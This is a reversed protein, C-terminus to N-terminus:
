EGAGEDSKGSGATSSAAAGEAPKPEPAEKGERVWDPLETEVVFEKVLDARSKAELYWENGMTISGKPCAECCLSCFLCKSYDIVYHTVIADKGKGVKEVAICEV